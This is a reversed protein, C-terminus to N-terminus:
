NDEFMQSVDEEEKIRGPSLTSSAVNQNTSITPVEHHHLFIPQALLLLQQWLLLHELQVDLLIRVVLELRRRFEMVSVM